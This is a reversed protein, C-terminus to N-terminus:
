DLIFKRNLRLLAYTFRYLLKNGEMIFMYVIEITNDLPLLSSLLTRYTEDIIRTPDFDIKQFHNLVKKDTKATKKVYTIMFNALLNM